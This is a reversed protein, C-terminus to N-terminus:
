RAGTRDRREIRVSKIEAAIDDETLEPVDPLCEVLQQWDTQMKQQSLVDVYEKLVQQLTKGNAQATAEAQQLTQEPIDLVLTM